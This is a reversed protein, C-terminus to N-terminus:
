PLVEIQAPVQGQTLMRLLPETPDDIRQLEIQFGCAQIAETLANELLAGARFLGGSIAVVLNRDPRALRAHLRQVLDALDAAARVIMANAEADGRQAQQLVIPALQAIRGRPDSSATLVTKLEADSHADLTQCVAAALGFLPEGAELRKLAVRVAERGLSFGSGDDGRLPGWGGAIALRGKADRGVGVAGTGAIIGIAPGDALAVLPLLDPIVRVQKAIEFPTIRHELQGRITADLTGAIALLAHQCRTDRLGAEAQATAISERIRTVAEDMGATRPNSGSATGSGLIEWHGGALIRALRCITKTGGGDIVLVLDDPQAATQM